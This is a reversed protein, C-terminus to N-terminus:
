GGKPSAASGTAFLYKVSMCLHESTERTPNILYGRQRPFRQVSPGLATRFAWRKCGTPVEILEFHGLTKHTGEEVIRGQDLVGIRDLAHPRHAPSRRSRGASTTSTKWNFTAIRLKSPM